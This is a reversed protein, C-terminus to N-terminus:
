NKISTIGLQDEIIKIRPEHSATGLDFYKISLDLKGNMARLSKKIPELDDKTAFVKKMKKIDADTIM